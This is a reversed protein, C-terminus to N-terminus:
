YVISGIYQTRGAALAQTVPKTHEITVRATGIDQLLSKRSTGYLKAENM